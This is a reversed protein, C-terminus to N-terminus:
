NLATKLVELNEKMISIYSMGADADRGTVTQMSNLRLIQQDKSATSEVITRAISQDSAELTLVCPLGLEDVKKALFAITSFGAETEASCGQFAAYYTLGYEKAMYLFPFRDGVLIIKRAATGIMEDYDADLAALEECYADANAAYEAAHDPDAEGLTRAIAQVSTQALPLSLWIHEDAEPEEEGEAAQGAEEEDAPEMGEVLEEELIRDELENMLRLDKRDPNVSEKLADDVWFDSEGGVYIFVDCSSVKMIDQAAPQFSHPDVGDDLLLTVDTEAARDGLVQMVWDYEPFITTVVSLREEGGAADTSGPAGDTGTGCGTLGFLVLIITIGLSTIARMAKIITGM